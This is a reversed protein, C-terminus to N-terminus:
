VPVFKYGYYIVGAEGESSITRFEFKVRMGIKIKDFDCDAVQGMVKVGDGLEVIAVAYPAQDAFQHPPVRIITYTLIKGTEALKTTEFERGGCSPCVIRPPFSIAGCTKCKGAELRYRQPFERWFRSPTPM